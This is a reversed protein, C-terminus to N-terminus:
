HSECHSMLRMCIVINSMPVAVTDLTLTKNGISLTQNDEPDEPVVPIDALKAVVNMIHPKKKEYNITIIYTVEGEVVNDAVKKNLNRVLKSM